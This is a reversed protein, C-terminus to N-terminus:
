TLRPVTYPRPPSFPFALHPAIQNMVPSQQRVCPSESMVLDAHLLLQATAAAHENLSHRARRESM